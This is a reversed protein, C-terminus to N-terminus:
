TPWAIGLHEVLTLSFVLEKVAGDVRVVVKLELMDGKSLTNVDFNNADFLKIGGYFYGDKRKNLIIREDLDLIYDNSESSLIVKDINISKEELCYIRLYSAPRTYSITLNDFFPVFLVKEFSFKGGMEIDARSMGRLLKTTPEHELNYYKYICGASFLCFLATLIRIVKTSTTDFLMKNLRESILSNLSGRILGSEGIRSDNGRM